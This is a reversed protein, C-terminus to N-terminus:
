NMMYKWKMDKRSVGWLSMVTLFATYLIPDSFTNIEIVIPNEYTANKADFTIGSETDFTFIDTLEGDVIPHTSVQTVTYGRKHGNVLYDDQNGIFNPVYPLSIPLANIRKDSVYNNPSPFSNMYGNDIWAETIEAAMPSVIQNFRASKTFEYAAETPKLKHIDWGFIDFRNTGGECYILRKTGAEAQFQVQDFLNGGVDRPVKSDGELYLGYEFNMLTVQHFFNANVWAMDAEKTIKPDVRLHIGKQLNTITVNNCKVNDSYSMPTTAEMLIGTGTWGSTAHKGLINIDKLM